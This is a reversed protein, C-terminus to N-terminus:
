PRWRPRLHLRFNGFPRASAAIVTGAGPEAVGTRHGPRAHPYGVFQVRGQVIASDAPRINQNSMSESAVDYAREGIPVHALDSPQHQNIGIGAVEFWLSHTFLFM